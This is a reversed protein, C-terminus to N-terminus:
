RFLVTYVEAGRGIRELLSTITLVVITCTLSAGLLSVRSLIPKSLKGM